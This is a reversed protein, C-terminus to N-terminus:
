LTHKVFVCYLLKKLVRHTRWHLYVSALTASIINNKKTGSAMCISDNM